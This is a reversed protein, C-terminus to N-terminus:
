RRCWVSRPPGRRPSRRAGSGDRGAHDTSRWCPAGAGAGVAASVVGAFRPTTTTGLQANALTVFGAVAALCVVVAGQVAVPPRRTRNAAIVVALPVSLVGIPPVIAVPALVLAAAHVISAAATLSTGALWARSRALVRFEDGGVVAPTAPDATRVVRRRGREADRCRGRVDRCRGQLCSTSSRRRDGRRSILPRQGRRLSPAASRRSGPTPGAFRGGPRRGHGCRSSLQPPRGPRENIRVARPPGPGGSVLVFVRRQVV